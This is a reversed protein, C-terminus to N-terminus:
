VFRYFPTAKGKQLKAKRNRTSIAVRHLTLVLM